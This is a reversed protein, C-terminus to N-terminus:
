TLFLLVKSLRNGRDAGAQLRPRLLADLGLVRGTPVAFFVLGLTYLMGYTWYWEFPIATVGIYLNIAQVFAALGGLRTFLGLILSVAVFAEMLWVIWGFWAMNPVVFRDVLDAQLPWKSYIVMLGVWDCLGSTREQLSTSVAFDAPCGFQPPMKWLLQTYWLYGYVLRSIIMSIRGVGDVSMAEKASLTNKM